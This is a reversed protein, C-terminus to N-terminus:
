PAGRGGAPGGCPKRHAGCAHCSVGRTARRSGSRSAADLRRCQPSAPRHADRALAMECGAEENVGAERRGRRVHAGSCAPPADQEAWGTGMTRSVHDAGLVQGTGRGCRRKRHHGRLVFTLRRLEPVKLSPLPCSPLTQYCFPPKPM